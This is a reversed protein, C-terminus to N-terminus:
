REGRFQARRWAANGQDYQVQRHFRRGDVPTLPEDYLSPPRDLDAANENKWPALYLGVAADRDGIITTGGTAPAAPGGGTAAARGALLLAAVTLAALACRSM